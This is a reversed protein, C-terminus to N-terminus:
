TLFIAEMVVAGAHRSRGSKSMQIVGFRWGEPYTFPSARGGREMVRLRPLLSKRAVGPVFIRIITKQERNYGGRKVNLQPM